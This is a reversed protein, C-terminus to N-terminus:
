APKESLGSPRAHSVAVPPADTAAIESKRPRGQKRPKADEGADSEKPTSQVTAGEGLARSSDAHKSDAAAFDPKRLRGPRRARSVAVPPADTSPVPTRPRGRKRPKADEGAEPEKPTSPVTAGNGSAQSSGAHQSEATAPVGAGADVSSGEAVSPVAGEKETTSSSSRYRGRAGAGAAAAAAKAAVKSEKKALARVAEDLDHEWGQACPLILCVWALKEVYLCANTHWCCAHVPVVHARCCYRAEPAAANTNNHCFYNGYKGAKLLVPRGDEPHM